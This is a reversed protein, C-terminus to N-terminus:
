VMAERQELGLGQAFAGDRLPLVGSFKAGLVPEVGSGGGAAAFAARGSASVRFFAVLMMRSHSPGLLFRSSAM